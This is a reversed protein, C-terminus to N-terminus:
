LELIRTRRVSSRTPSKASGKTDQAWFSSHSAHEASRSQLGPKTQELKSSPPRRQAEPM